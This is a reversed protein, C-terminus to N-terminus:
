SNRFIKGETYIWGESEILNIIELSRYQEEDLYISMMELLVKHLSPDENLKRLIALIEASKGEEINRKCLKDPAGAAYALGIFNEWSYLHNLTSAFEYIIRRRFLEKDQNNKITTPLVKVPEVEKEIIEKKSPLIESPESIIWGFTEQNEITDRENFDKKISRSLEKWIQKTILFEGPKAKGQVHAATNIIDSHIHRQNSKYIIFGSHAGARITIRDGTPNEYLNFPILGALVNITAEVAPEESGKGIFAFIGGDGAWSWIEGGENSTSKKFFDFLKLFINDTDAQSHSRIFDSHAVVDLSVITCYIEENDKLQPRLKSHYEQSIGARSQLQQTIKSLLDRIQQVNEYVYIWNGASSTKIKDVFEILKSEISLNGSEDIPAKHEKLIIASWLQKQILIIVPIGKKLAIEYEHHIWSLGSQPEISGYRRHLLLIFLDAREISEDVADLVSKNSVVGFVESSFVKHGWNSLQRALIDRTDALDYMTSALFITLSKKYGLDAKEKSVGKKAQEFYRLLDTAQMPHIASGVRVYFRGDRTSYPGELSPPVMIKIVNKGKFKGIEIQLEIPPRCEYRAINSIRIQTEDINKIGVINSDDSIGIFIEGGRSNAFACLVKALDRPLSEKFEITESEFSPIDFM